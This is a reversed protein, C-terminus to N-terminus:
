GKTDGFTDLIWYAFSRAEEESLCAPWRLCLDGGTGVFAIYRGHAEFNVPFRNGLSYLLLRLGSMRRAFVAWESAKSMASRWDM